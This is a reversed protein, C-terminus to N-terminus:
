KQEQVKLFVDELSPEIRKFEVSLNEQNLFDRIKKEDTLEFKLVNGSQRLNEVFELNEIKTKLFDINNENALLEFFGKNFYKEKLVQACDLAVIKGNKMFAINQSYEAEDMYHTTIFITKGEKVLEKILLWFSVRSNPSVGATPEDLFIIEPNHLVTTCLAVSQRVGLSLDSAKKNEDYDFRIFEFLKAKRKAIEKKSMNHLAGSFEINEKISLDKYLSFKQSMYGVIRKLSFINGSINIGNLKIVGSSPKLIGCISRITTTKGAGNAGLFGFIESRNVSFSINDVAKFTGFSVSLNKVEISPINKTQM